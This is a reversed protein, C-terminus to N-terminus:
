MQLQRAMLRQFDSSRFHVVFFLNHEQSFCFVGLLWNAVDSEDGTELLYFSKLSLFFCVTICESSLSDTMSVQCRLTGPQWINTRASNQTTAM